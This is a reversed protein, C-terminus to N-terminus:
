WRSPSATTMANVVPVPGMIETTAMFGGLKLNATHEGISGKDTTFMPM